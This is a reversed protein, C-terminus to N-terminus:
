VRLDKADRPRLRIRCHVAAARRNRVAAPIRAPRVARAGVGPRNRARPGSCYRRGGIGRRAWTGEDSQTNNSISEHPPSSAPSSAASALESPLTLAPLLPPLSPLLLLPVVAASEPLLSPPLLPVVPGLKSTGSNPAVRTSM